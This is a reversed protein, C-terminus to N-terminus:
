SLSEGGAAYRLTCESAKHDSRRSMAFTATMDHPGKTHSRCEVELVDGPGAPASFRAKRVEIIRVPGGHWGELTVAAAQIMCVGPLVPQGPFHGNFGSFTAPFVFSAWPFGSRVGTAQVCCRIEKRLDMIFQRPRTARRPM